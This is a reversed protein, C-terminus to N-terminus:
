HQLYDPAHREVTPSAPRNCSTVQEGAGFRKGPDDTPAFIELIRKVIARGTHMQDQRFAYAVMDAAQLPPYDCDDAFSLATFRERYASRRSRLKTFLKLCSVSYSESLDYILHFHADPLNRAAGESIAKILAEFGAYAMGGLRNRLKHSFDTQYTQADLTSHTKYLVSDHIFLALAELLDDRDRQRDKWSRFDGEYHMADKMSVCTVGSPLMANWKRVFGAIEDQPFIVAGFSVCKPDKLEGSEDCYVQFAAMIGAREDRYFNRCFESIADM